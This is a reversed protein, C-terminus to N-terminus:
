SPFTSDELSGCKPMPGQISCTTLPPKVSLSVTLHPSSPLAPPLLSLDQWAPLIAHAQSQFPFSSSPLGSLSACAEAWTAPLALHLFVKHTM